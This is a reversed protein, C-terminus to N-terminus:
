ASRQRDECHREFNPSLHCPNFSRRRFLSRRKAVTRDAVETTFVGNASISLIVALDKTEGSCHKGSVVSSIFQPLISAWRSRRRSAACERWSIRSSSRQGRHRVSNITMGVIHVASRARLLPKLRDIEAGGPDRGRPRGSQPLPQGDSRTYRWAFDVGEPVTGTTM